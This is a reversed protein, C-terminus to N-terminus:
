KQRVELAKISNTIWKEYSRVRTYLTAVDTGPCDDTKSYAVGELVMNRAKFMNMLPSGLEVTCPGKGPKVGCFQTDKDPKAKMCATTNWFAVATNRKAIIDTPFMTTWWGSVNLIADDLPAPIVTIGFPLCIPKMQTGFVIDRNLKLLAIDNMLKPNWM